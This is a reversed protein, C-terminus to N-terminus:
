HLTITKLNFMLFAIERSRSIGGCEPLNSNCIIVGLLTKKDLDKCSFCFLKNRHRRRKIVSYPNSLLANQTQVKLAKTVPFKRRFSQLSFVSTKCLKM